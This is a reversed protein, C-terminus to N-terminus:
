QLRGRTGRSRVPDPGPLPAMGERATTALLRTKLISMLPAVSM